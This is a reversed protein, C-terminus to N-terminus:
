PFDLFHTFGKRDNSTSVGKRNTLSRKILASLKEGWIEYGGPALHLNDSALRSPNARGDPLLFESFLNLSLIRHKKALKEFGQNIAKVKARRPDAPTEGVPFLYQLVIQAAPRQSRVRLIVADVGAIIAEPSDSNLNNVGILIAIVQPSCRSLAGNQLRWLVHQTRDGSIGMAVTNFQTLYKQYADGAGNHVKRGPSAWSQTISDGLLVLKPQLKASTEICDQHQDLWSRGNWGAGDYRSEHNPTPNITALPAKATRNQHELIFNVIPTPDDLSHPHHGVGVKRIVKILGGLKRYNRELKDTNDAVPVVVDATGVVHVIPVKAKALSALRNIPAFPYGLAAPENPFGYKQQLTLWDTAAEPSRKPWSTFDCVPADGYIAM